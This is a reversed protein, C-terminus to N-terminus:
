LEAVAEESHKRGPAAKINPLRRQRNLLHGAEHRCVSLNTAVSPLAGGGGGCLACKPECKYGEEPNQSNCHKCAKVTPELCVDARHGANRCTNCFQRTPQYIRCPIEGGYYYVHRPVILGDCLIIATRTKGFMRAHMIKFGQTRVPLNGMLEDDALRLNTGEDIGHIVGKFLYEPTTIYTNAPHQKCQIDLNTIKM